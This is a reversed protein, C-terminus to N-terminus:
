FHFLVFLRANYMRILESQLSHETDDTRLITESREAAIGQRLLIGVKGLPKWLGGFGAEIGYRTQDSTNTRFDSRKDQLYSNVYLLPQAPGKWLLFHASLDFRLDQHERPPPNELGSLIDNERSLHHVKVEFSALTKPWVKWVSIGRDLPAIGLSIEALAPSPLVFLILVLLLRQPM